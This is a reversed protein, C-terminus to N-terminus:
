EEKLLPLTISATPLVLVKAEDGYNKLAEDLVSQASNAPLMGMETIDEDQIGESILYIKAKEKCKAILYSIVGSVVNKEPHAKISKIIDEPTKEKLYDVFDKGGIGEYCPSLMIITSKEKIIHGIAELTKSAQHFSIDMPYSSALIIDAKEPIEVGYIDNCVRVGAQYALTPDGAIVKVIKNEVNMITNVIMDLGIMKAAEEMEERVPNGRTKGLAAEGTEVYLHNHGITKRSSVGPLISKAGGGYGAYRHPVINGTSIKVEAQVVEKNVWLENGRKSKGLYFLNNDPDHQSIKVRKLVEEGVKEKVEEETMKRHQGRAIIVKIHNDSIGGKNLEDLIPPILLKDPTPRTIDTCIVVASDKGRAIKPITHSGIPNELAERIAKNNDEVGAVDKLLCIKLLNKPPLTIPIKEKGYPLLFTKM